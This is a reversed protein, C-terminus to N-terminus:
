QGTDVRWGCQWSHGLISDASAILPLLTVGALTGCCICWRATQGVTFPCAYLQLACDAMVTAKWWVWCHHMRTELYAAQCCCGSLPGFESAGCICRLYRLLQATFNSDDCSCAAVLTWTLMHVCAAVATLMVCLASGRNWGGVLGSANCRMCCAYSAHCLIALV